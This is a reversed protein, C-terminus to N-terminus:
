FFEEINVCHKSQKSKSCQICQATKLRGLKLKVLMGFLTYYIIYRIAEVNKELVVKSYHCCSCYVVGVEFGCCCLRPRGKPRM